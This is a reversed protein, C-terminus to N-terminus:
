QYMIGFIEQRRQLKIFSIRLNSSKDSKNQTGYKKNNFIIIFNFTNSSLKVRKLNFM